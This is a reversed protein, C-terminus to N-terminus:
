GNSAQSQGNSGESPELAEHLAAVFWSEPDAIRDYKFWMASILETLIEQARDPSVNHASLILEALVSLRALLDESPGSM